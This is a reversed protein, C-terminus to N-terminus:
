LFKAQSDNKFRCYVGFTLPFTSMAIYESCSFKSNAFLEFKDHSTAFVDETIYDFKFEIQDWFECILEILEKPLHFSFGNESKWHSVVANTAKLGKKSFRKKSIMCDNKIENQFVHKKFFNELFTNKLAHCKM